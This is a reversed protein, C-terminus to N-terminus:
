KGRGFGTLETVTTQGAVEVESKVLGSLPVDKSTWKRAASVSTTTTANSPHTITQTVRNRVWTCAFRQGGVALTEEGSGLREITTKVNTSSPKDPDFPEKLSVKVETAPQDMDGVKIESRLTIEDATKAVVTQKFTSPTAGNSKYSVWDGVRALRLFNEVPKDGSRGPPTENKQHVTPDGPSAPGSASLLAFGSVTLAAAFSSLLKGM